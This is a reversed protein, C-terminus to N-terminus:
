AILLLIIPTKNAQAPSRDQRIGAAPLTGQASILLAVTCALLL